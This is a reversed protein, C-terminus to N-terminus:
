RAANLFPNRGNGGTEGIFHVLQLTTIWSDIV